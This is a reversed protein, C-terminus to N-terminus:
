TLSADPNHIDQGLMEPTVLVVGNPSVSFRQKDDDMNEGIITGEPINCGKDLIAKKIICNRGVEVQPLVVSDEVVSFSNIRVNSFLLSRRVTAGSIVCGGSITSDVAMGRRSDNDFVFKAPPDQQQHTWIPWTQDYLNMEPDVSVLEMNAEWFSDITGVDRWYAQGGTQINLFPYAYVRYKDIISPIIDHGFDRTSGPTEKDKVLQEYLFKANFIYIGMSALAVDERGPIHPPNEPKEVFEKVRSDDDVHMVGFATAEQLSVELCGITLEANNEAHFALMQGYDM